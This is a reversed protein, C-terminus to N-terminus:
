ENMERGHESKHVLSPIQHFNEENVKMNNNSKPLDSIISTFHQLSFAFVRREDGKRLLECKGKKRKPIEFSSSIIFSKVKM